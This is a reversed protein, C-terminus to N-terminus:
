RVARRKRRRALFLVLMLGAMLFILSQLLTNSM